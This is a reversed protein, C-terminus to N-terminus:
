RKKGGPIGAVTAVPEFPAKEFDDYSRKPTFLPDQGNEPGPLDCALEADNIPLRPRRQDDGNLIEVQAEDALFNQSICLVLDPYRGITM